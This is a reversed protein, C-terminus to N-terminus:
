HAATATLYGDASDLRRYQVERFSLGVNFASGNASVCHAVRARGQIQLDSGEGHLEGSITVDSNLDLAVNTELGLGGNSMDLLKGVVFRDGTGIRLHEAKYKRSREQVRRGGIRNEATAQGDGEFKLTRYIPLSWDSLDTCSIYHNGESDIAMTSRICHVDMGYRERLWKTATLDEYDYDEAVLIVSQRRNIESTGVELFSELAERREDSLRNLIDNATWQALMGSCTIARSLQPQDKKGLPLVLTVQGKQDVAVVDVRIEVTESLQVDKGIVFLKLGIEEFFEGPSNRILEGLDYRETLAGIDQVTLSILQKQYQEIRQM